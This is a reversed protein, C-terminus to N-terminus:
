FVVHIMQEHSNFCLCLVTLCARWFIFWDRCSCLAVLGTSPVVVTCCMSFQKTGNTLHCPFRDGLHCDMVISSANDAICNFTSRVSCKLELSSAAALSINGENSPLWTMVTLGYKNSGFFNSCDAFRFLLQIQLCFLICSTSRFHM